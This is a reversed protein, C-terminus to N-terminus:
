LTLCKEWLLKCAAFSCAGGHVQQESCKHRDHQSTLCELSIAAAKRVHLLRQLVPPSFYIGGHLSISTHIVLHLCVTSGTDPNVTGQNHIGCTRGHSTLWTSCGTCQSCHQWADQMMVQDRSPMHGLRDCRAPIGWSQEHHCHHRTNCGHRRAPM